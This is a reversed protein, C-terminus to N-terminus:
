KESYDASVAGVFAARLASTGGEDSFSTILRSGSETTECVNWYGDLAKELTYYKFNCDNDFLVVIYRCSSIYRDEALEVYFATCDTFYQPTTNFNIDRSLRCDNTIYNIFDESNIDGQFSGIQEGTEESELIFATIYDNLNGNWANLTYSGQKNYMDTYQALIEKSEAALMEYFYNHEFSNRVKEHIEASEEDMVSYDVPQVNFNIYKLETMDPTCSPTGTSIENETDRLVTPTTKSVTKAQSDWETECGFAEAAYRAPVFIRGETIVPATDMVLKEGNIKLIDSGVTMNVMINDKVGSVTKTDENWYADAGLAEFVDRVPLMTRGDTIQPTTECVIVEGDVKVTIDEEAFVASSNLAALLFAASIIKKM